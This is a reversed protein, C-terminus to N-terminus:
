RVATGPGAQRDLEARVSDNIEQLRTIRLLIDQGLVAGAKPEVPAPTLTPASRAPGATRPAAAEARPARTSQPPPAEQAPAQVRPQRHSAVQSGPALSVTHPQGSGIVPPAQTVASM